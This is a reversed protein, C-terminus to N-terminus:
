QSLTKFFINVNFEISKILRYDKVKTAGEKKPILVIYFDNLKDMVRDQTTLIYNFTRLMDPMIIDKFKKSLSELTAM